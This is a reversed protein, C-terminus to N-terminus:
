IYPKFINEEMGSTAKESQWKNGKSLLLIKTEHLGVQRNKSKNNLKQHWIWSIMALVLLIFNEGTNEELFKITEPRINLDKTYKSNIKTSPTHYLDLKM